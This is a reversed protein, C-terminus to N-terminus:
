TRSLMSRSLRFAYCSTTRSSSMSSSQDECGLWIIIRESCIDIQGMMQVQSAREALDQQFICIADIWICAADGPPHLFMYHLFDSLNQAILITGSSGSSSDTLKLIPKKNWRSPDGPDNKEHLFPTGM